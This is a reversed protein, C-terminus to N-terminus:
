SKCFFAGSFTSSLLFIVFIVLCAFFFKTKRRASFGLLSFEFNLILDVTLNEYAFLCQSIEKDYM